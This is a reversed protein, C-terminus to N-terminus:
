LKVLEAPDRVPQDFIPVKSQCSSAVHHHCCKCGNMRVFCRDARGVSGKATDLSVKRSVEIIL